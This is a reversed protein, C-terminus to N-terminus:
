RLKVPLLLADEFSELTNLRSGLDSLPLCDAASEGSQMQEPLLMGRFYKQVLSLFRDIGGHANIGSPWLELFLPVGMEWLRSGSEIVDGECGQVDSWVFAVRGLPIENEELIENLTNAAVEIQHSERSLGAYGQPGNVKVEGRGCETPHVLFPATKANMLIASAVCTIRDALGNQDVNQQLLQFNDPAPEIAIVHFGTKIAIPISTSGINAGVDIVVNRQETLFDNEGLWCLLTDIEKAQYGGRVFLRKAISGTLPATWKVGDRQYSIRNVDNALLYLGLLRRQQRLVEKDGTLLARAARLAIKLYRRVM